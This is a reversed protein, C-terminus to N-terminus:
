DKVAAELWPQRTERASGRLAAPNTPGRGAGKKGKAGKRAGGGARGPPEDMGVSAAKPIANLSALLDKALDPKVSILDTEELPDDAIHFIHTAVQGSGRRSFQVLKWGDRFVAYNGDVGMVTAGREVPEGNRLAQWVDVGDFPRDNAPTAGVASSLTQFWDLATIMEDSKEGEPLVGPWRITAPVRIGGEFANGKSGRLPANSAGVNRGGGNDSAWVVLTDRTLGEEELAALIRGVGDDMSTVMAAYTRRLENEIGSYRELYESPAQLPTHPANFAVYLFMPRAKDRDKIRRVAEATILDTSYGEERLVKGNRHWDLGGAWIHTFYDVSPGLHGYSHDFGRRYPHWSVRELGLHWKGTLITKYGARRLTDTLLHEDLPLGGERGIPGHVGLRIPSRGTLFAARTPSCLPFTYYRDLELGSRVLADIHPTEIESGHYGVDNWGLDDALMFVIHPKAHAVVALCLFAAIRLPM